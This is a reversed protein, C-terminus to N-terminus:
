RASKSTHWGGGRWGAWWASPSCRSHKLNRRGIINGSNDTDRACNVTASPGPCHDLPNRVDLGVACPNLEGDQFCIMRQHSAVSVFLDLGNRLRSPGRNVYRWRELRDILNGDSALLLCDLSSRCLDGGDILCQPHRTPFEGGVDLLRLM